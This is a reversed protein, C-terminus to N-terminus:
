RVHDSARCTRRPRSRRAHPEKRKPADRTPPWPIGFTASPYLEPTVPESGRRDLNDDFPLILHTRVLFKFGSTTTTFGAWFPTHNSAESESFKALSRRM